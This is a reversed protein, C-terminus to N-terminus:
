KDLRVISLSMTVPKQKLFMQVWRLKQVDVREPSFNYFSKPPFLLLQLSLFEEHYWFLERVYDCPTLQIIELLLGGNHQVSANITM